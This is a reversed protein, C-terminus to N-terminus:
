PELKETDKAVNTITKKIIARKTPMFHYSMTTQNANGQHSVINLMKKHTTKNQKKRKLAVGTAYPTEWALPRIPAVAEPRRWLWLM